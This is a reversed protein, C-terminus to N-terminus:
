MKEPAPIGLLALGNKLVIAVANTITVKYPSQPDSSDVIKEKAYFSNFLGALEMLYTTIYHPEYERGAREVIEPFRYLLREINSPLRVELYTNQPIKEEKAKNLVSLARTHTYQLYPGSDGEFSLSKDFDFIIDKGSTQKLISYKIAGIAVQESIKEKEEETLKRDSVKEKIREKVEGILSEATIVKGTRSSMKGEPLRLMGHSIHITKKALDPFMLELAKHVVKFYENVENATVVISKDYPYKEYKIKALDLEKAEYTPLGQSNIFVRTHLGYKEGKFVVAGESKEFIKEKYKEVLKKGFKGTDSEFFYYDFHTELRKYIEEFKELSEKKGEGYLLFLSPDKEYIKQNIDIIEAKIRADAQSIAGLAYAEGWSADPNKLKGWVAKAVHLGVDGQYCARKVEAGNYEIVRSIAEGITNSMLHGIHFEKFPNPDTYEVITKEKNFINTKGYTDGNKNIGAITKSLFSSALSFNIFGRGAIEIKEIEPLREKELESVLKLALDNSSMAFEKSYVLAVNSSYDGYSLDAPHEVSVNTPNQIGVKKLMEEILNKLEKKM